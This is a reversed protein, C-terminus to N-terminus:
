SASTHFPAEDLSPPAPKPLDAPLGVAGLIRRIAGADVIVTLEPLGQRGCKPCRLIDTEFVRRILEAWRWRRTHLPATADASHKEQENGRHTRAGESQPRPVVHPRLKANPAFVGSYRLLHVRPPPVLAALKSLFDLPDLLIHTTGDSWPRKLRLQVWGDEM